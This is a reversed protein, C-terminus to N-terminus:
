YIRATTMILGRLKMLDYLFCNVAYKSPIIKSNLISRKNKTRQGTKLTIKSCSEMNNDDINRPYKMFRVCGAPYQRSVARYTDRLYGKIKQNYFFFIINSVGLISRRYKESVQFGENSM